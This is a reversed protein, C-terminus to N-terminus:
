LKSLNDDSDRDILKHYPDVGVENPKTGVIIKQINHIETIKHKKLYLPQGNEDFVGVEIFDQLPLSEIHCDCLFTM